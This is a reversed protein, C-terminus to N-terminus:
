RNWWGSGPGSTTTHFSYDYGDSLPCCTVKDAGMAQAYDKAAKM